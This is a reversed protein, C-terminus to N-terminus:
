RLRPIFAGSWSKSGSPGPPSVLVTGSAGALTQSRIKVTAGSTRM